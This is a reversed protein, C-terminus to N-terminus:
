GDRGLWRVMGVSRQSEAFGHREYLRRGPPDSMLSVYADPPAEEAIRDLLRTLVRDGLGRRQHEPLVAMDVVHFYWGGDGILRGMAVTSGDRSDVVHCAAWAGGLALEAQDRSRPTLGAELRLRQYDEPAPGEPVLTYRDDPDDM